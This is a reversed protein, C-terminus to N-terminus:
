EQSEACRIGGMTIDLERTLNKFQSLTEPTFSCLHAKETSMQVNPNMTFHKEIFTAGQFYSKVAASIGIAHDSYGEYKGKEFKPMAKIKPNDLLTPYEAVCYMYQINDAHGYPFEGIEHLGTSIITHRNHSLIKKCLEPDNKSTCSAIKYTNTSRVVGDFVMNVFDLKEEDFVTSICDIGLTACYVYFDAIDDDKMELHKRSDDGWIRQSNLLQLKVIDAGNLHASLAMRKLERLDGSHQNFLDVIIKM